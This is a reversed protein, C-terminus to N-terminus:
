ASRSIDHRGTLAANGQGEGRQRMERRVADARGIQGTVGQGLRAQLRNKKMEPQVGQYGEAPLPGCAPQEVATRPADDRRQQQGRQEERRAAEGPRADQPLCDQQAQAVAEEM